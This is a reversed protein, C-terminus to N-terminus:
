NTELVKDPCEVLNLYMCIYDENFFRNSGLGIKGNQSLANKFFLQFVRSSKKPVGPLIKSKNQSGELLIISHIWRIKKQRNDLVHVLPELLEVQKKQPDM